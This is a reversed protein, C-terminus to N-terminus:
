GNLGLAGLDHPPRALFAARQEPPVKYAGFLRSHCWSLATQADLAATELRDLLPAIQQYATLFAGRLDSGVELPQTLSWIDAGDIPVAHTACCFPIAFALDYIRPRWACWDLDVFAQVGHDGFILNGPQIDGHVLTHPLSFYASDPLMEVAQEVWLRYPAVASACESSQEAIERAKDILDSPDTEGRPGLKELRMPFGRGAEHFRALAEGLALADEVSNERMSRGSVFRHMEWISGSSDWWTRRQESKQPAVVPVGHEALYCAAAHDFLLREESCFAPHRERAIWRGAPTDLILARNRTGGSSEWHTPRELGFAACLRMALEENATRDM